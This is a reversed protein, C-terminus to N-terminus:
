TVSFHRFIYTTTKWAFQPAKELSHSGFWSCSNFGFCTVSCPHLYQYRLWCNIINSFGLAVFGCGLHNNYEHQKQSNHVNNLNFKLLCLCLASAVPAPMLNTKVLGFTYLIVTILVTCKIVRTVKLAQNIRETWTTWHGRWVGTACSRCCSVMWWTRGFFREEVNKGKCKSLLKDCHPYLKCQYYRQQIVFCM